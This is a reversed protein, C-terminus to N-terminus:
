CWNKFKDHLEKVCTIGEHFQEYINLHSKYWEDYLSFLNVIDRILFLSTYETPILLLKAHNHDYNNSVTSDKTQM